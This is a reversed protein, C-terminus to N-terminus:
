TAVRARRGGTGRVVLLHGGLLLLAFAVSLGPVPGPVCLLTGAGGVGILVAGPRRLVGARALGAALMGYGLAAVVCLLFVYQTSGASLDELVRIQGDRDRAAGMVSFLLGAVCIGAAGAWGLASAIRTSVAATRRGADTLLQALTAASSSLLGCAALALLWGTDSRAPHAAAQTLVGDWDQDDFPVALARGILMLAPGLLLVAVTSRSFPPWTDKGMPQEPTTRGRQESGDPTM